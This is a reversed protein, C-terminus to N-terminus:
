SNNPSSYIDTSGSNLYLHDLNVGIESLYNLIFELRNESELGDSILIKVLIKAILGSFYQGINEKEIISFLPKEALGLGPKLYKCFFFTDPKFHNKNQQYTAEINPYVSEFTSRYIELVASNPTDFDEEEYSVKFDFPIGIPNLKQTLRDMLIVAGDASVNFYLQAVIEDQSADATNISGANGVAIYTGHDVWNSPMKISVSQGLHLKELPEALHEEPKIDLTLGEKTVQWRKMEQKTVVWHPDRYGQGHNYQTLRQYFKTRSWKKVYNATAQHKDEADDSEDVDSSIELKLECSFISYLYGQLKAVLYQNRDTCSISQLYRQFNPEVELPKYGSCVMTLDPLIQITEVIDQLTQRFSVTNTMLNEQPVSTIAASMM